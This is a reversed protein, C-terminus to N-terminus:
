EYTYKTKTMGCNFRNILLDKDSMWVTKSSIFPVDYGAYSTEKFDKWYKIGMFSKQYQVKYSVHNLCTNKHDEWTNYEKKVIRTKM